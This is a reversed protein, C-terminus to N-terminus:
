RDCALLRVIMCARGLAHLQRSSMRDWAFVECRFIALFAEDVFVPDLMRSSEYLERTWKLQDQKTM